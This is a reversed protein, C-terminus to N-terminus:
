AAATTPTSSLPPWCCTSLSLPSFPSKLPHSFLIASPIRWVGGCHESLCLMSRAGCKFKREGTAHINATGRHRPAGSCRPWASPKMELRPWNPSDFNLQHNPICGTNVCPSAPPDRGSVRAYVSPPPASGPSIPSSLSSLCYSLLSLARCGSLVRGPQTTRSSPRFSHDRYATPRPADTHLQLSAIRRMTAGADQVVTTTGRGRPKHQAVRVAACTNKTVAPTVRLPPLATYLLLLSHDDSIPAM